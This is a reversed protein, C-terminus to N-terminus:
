KNGSDTQRNKQQWIHPGTRPIYLDSVSIHIYSYPSLSRLEKESFLYIPNKTRIKLFYFCVVRVEADWKWIIPLGISRIAHFFLLFSSVKKSDNTNTEVEV